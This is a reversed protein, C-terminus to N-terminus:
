SARKRGTGRKVPKTRDSSRIIGDAVLAQRLREWVRLGTASVTISYLEARDRLAYDFTSEFATGLLLGLRCPFYRFDKEDLYKRAPVVVTEWESPRKCWSITEDSPVWPPPSKGQAEWAQNWDRVMIRRDAIFGPRPWSKMESESLQGVISWHNRYLSEDSVLQVTATDTIDPLEALGERHPPASHIHGFGYVLLARKGVPRDASWQAVLANRVRRTATTRFVTFWTRLTSVEYTPLAVADGGYSLERLDGNDSPV